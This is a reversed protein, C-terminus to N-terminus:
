MRLLRTEQRCKPSAGAFAYPRIPGVQRGHGALQAPAVLGGVGDDRQQVAPTLLSGTPLGGHRVEQHRRRGDHVAKMRRVSARVLDRARPGGRRSVEYERGEWSRGRGDSGLWWTPLVGRGHVWGVSDSRAVRCSHYLSIDM